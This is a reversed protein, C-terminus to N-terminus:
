PELGLLSDIRQLSLPGDCANAAMILEVEALLQDDTLSVDFQDNVASHLERPLGICLISLRESTHDSVRVARVV